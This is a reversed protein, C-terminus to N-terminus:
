VNVPPMELAVHGEIQPSAINMFGEIDVARVPVVPPEVNKSCFQWLVVISQLLNFAGWCIAYVVYADSLGLLSTLMMKTGTALLMMAGCLVVSVEFPVCTVIKVISATFQFCAFVIFMLYIVYGVMAQTQVLPLVILLITSSFGMVVILRETQDGSLGTRMFLPGATMVAAIAAGVAMVAGPPIPDFYTAQSEAFFEVITAQISIYIAYQATYCVILFEFTKTEIAASRFDTGLQRWYQYTRLSPPRPGGADVSVVGQLSYVHERTPVWLFCVLIALSSGTIAFYFPVFPDLVSSQVLAEFLTSVFQQALYSSGVVAYYLLYYEKPLLYRGYCICAIWTATSYGASVCCVQVVGNDGSRAWLGAGVLQCLAGSYMAMKAGYALTILVVPTIFLLTSYGKISVLATAADETMGQSQELYQILTADPPFTGLLAAFVCLPFLVLVVMDRNLM